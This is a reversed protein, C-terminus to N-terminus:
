QLKASVKVDIDLSEGKSEDDIVLNAVAKSIMQKLRPDELDMVISDELIFKQTYTQCSNQVKIKIINLM